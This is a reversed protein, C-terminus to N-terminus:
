TVTPCDRNSLLFIVRSINYNLCVITQQAKVRLNTTLKTTGGKFKRVLMGYPHEGRVRTKSIRKNRLYDKRNFKGRKMTADRKAKPKMGSYGRDRYIIENEFSLDVKGDHVNAPTVEIDEIMKTEADVKTHLKHGFLSKKGKKTWVGDKSRSTKAEDGRGKMGSVKGKSAEIVKSDQIMKKPPSEMKFKAPKIVGTEVIIANKLQDNIVRWIDENLGTEVIYERFRWITPFSPVKEPYDLFSKFDLRNHIEFPLREDSLSYWNQLMLIKFMLVCEYRPRGMKKQYGDFLVEVQKFDLLKKVGELESKPKVNLDYEEKNFFQKFNLSSM